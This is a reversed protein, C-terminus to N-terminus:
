ILQVYSETNELYFINPMTNVHEIQYNTFAINELNYQMLVENFGIPIRGFYIFYDIDEVELSELIGVEPKKTSDRLIQDKLFITEITVSDNKDLEAEKFVYDQVNDWSVSFENKGFYPIYEAQFNRVSELLKIHLESQENLLLYIRYAPKILTLEETLFTTGKNAYGVTNSYKILVKEFSGQFHNLPAIGIKLESLKIYYEPFEGKKKYGDLGTIAGLIGLIAPKHIIDYSVNMTNNTEPKRFFGFDGKLDFSLLKM